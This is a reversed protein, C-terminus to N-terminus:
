PTVTRVPTPQPTPTPDAALTLDVQEPQSAQLRIPSPAEIRPALRHTGASLGAADVVLRVERPGLSSLVPMPGNVTLRVTAPNVSARLGPGVNQLTPAIDVVKSGEVPAVFARVTIPQARAVRVGTPLALEATASLDSSANNLDIPLTEVFQLSEIARPEGEITIATPDVRLGVVQYGAAPAGRLQVSIPVAKFAMEQEVPLEVLVSEPSVTVRDVREGASNQPVIRFVQNISSTVGTLSVDAVAAAVQDVLTEPGSVAVTDPTLKPARTLYGPVRDGGVKARVPVDKRKVQELLVSLKPPQVDQVKVRNDISLVEVPVDQLGRAGRSLDITAQFKAARLGPMVDSPAVVTISVPQPENRVIMGPPVNRLEVPISPFVDVVDPNQSTTVVTWLATSLLLAFLMWVLNRRLLPIM